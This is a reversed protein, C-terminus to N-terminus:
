SGAGARGRFSALRRGFWAGADQEDDGCRIRYPEGTWSSRSAIREIFEETSDYHRRGRERKMQLHERAAAAEHARGNRIFVCESAVVAELLFDIEADMTEGAGGRASAFLLALALAAIPGCRAATM